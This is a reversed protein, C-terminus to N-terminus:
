PVVIRDTAVFRDSGRTITVTVDWQGRRPVVVRGQHLGPAIETLSLDPLAMGEVPRIFLAAVRIDALPQGAADRAFVDLRDDRWDMGVQWGLAAQRDAQAAADHWAGDKVRREVVVGVASGTAYYILVGNVAVVLGLGAVFLWPIWLSRRAVGAMDANRGSSIRKAGRWM